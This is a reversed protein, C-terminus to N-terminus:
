NWIENCNDGTPAAHYDRNLSEIKLIDEATLEFDFISMNQKMHEPNAAKPIVVMGSQSEWRLIVQATSRTHKESIEAIIPEERLNLTPDYEGPKKMPPGGLPFWAEMQIDVKKLYTRMPEITLYPNCELQDVVPKIECMDLIKEIHAQHFNSLGINKVLGDKHLTELAKWAETYLGHEPCPYHILYMDLYDVGLDSISKKCEAIADDYRHKGNKLKSSIFLEERAIGNNKYAEGLLKENGYLAAGDFLRYGCAIANNIITQLDGGHELFMTGMGIAPIDNGNNLKITPCKQM